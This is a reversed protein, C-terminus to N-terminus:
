VSWRYTIFAFPVDVKMTSPKQRYQCVLWRGRLQPLLLCAVSTHRNMLTHLSVEDTIILQSGNSGSSNRSFMSSSTSASDAADAGGWVDVSRHVQWVPSGDVVMKQMRQSWKVHEQYPIAALFAEWEAMNAFTVELQTSAGLCDCSQMVAFPQWELVFM